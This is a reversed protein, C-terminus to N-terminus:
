GHLQKAQLYQNHLLLPVSFASELPSSSLLGVTQSDHDNFVDAYDSVTIFLTEDYLKRSKFGRIIKGFFEDTTRLTNLYANIYPDNTYYQCDTYSQDDPFLFPVHTGTVLLSMMLQHTQEEALTEDLWKWLLPLINSDPPDFIGIDPVYRLFSNGPNALNFIYRISEEEVRRRLISTGEYLYLITKLQQNEVSSLLQDTLKKNKKSSSLLIDMITPLIDMTSYQGHLQKAQLYRNHFILPVSFASELPSSLLGLTQSGYDNFVYGHDSVVIFLTEDYLKRSKFGHILKGFLEDTIRLTNLHANIRPDNTYYQYDNYSRDEPYLFPEHTGTILLSMM